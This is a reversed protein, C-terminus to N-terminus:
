KVKVPLLREQYSGDGLQGRDNFGWCYIEDFITVACTHEGFSAPDINEVEFPNTGWGGTAAYKVRQNLKVRVAYPRNERDGVGLEGHTNNGWCYLHFDNDIACTSNGRNAFINRINELLSGDEKRVYDAYGREQWTGDGLQGLANAGWCLVKGDSRLACTHNEAAAIKTVNQLLGDATHVYDIPATAYEQSFGPVGLQGESGNWAWCKVQGEELLACTHDSSGAAVMKVNELPESTHKSAHVLLPHPWFFTQYFSKENLHQLLNTPTFDKPDKGIGLAGDFNQGWCYLNGETTVGCAHWSGTSIQKIGRLPTGNEFVVEENISTYPQHQFPFLSQPIQNLPNQNRDVKGNGLKGYENRGWCRVEGEKTLLCSYEKAADVQVAVHTNPFNAIRTPVPRNQLTGDGLEGKANDGWCYVARGKVACTHKWGASIHHITQDIFSIFTEADNIRAMLNLPDPRGDEDIDLYVFYGDKSGMLKYLRQTANSYYVWRFRPDEQLRALQVFYGDPKKDPVEVEVPAFGFANNQTPPTALIRFKKGSKVDVYLWDNYDIKGDKEFDVMYFKGNIPVATFDYARALEEHYAVNQAIDAQLTQFLFLATAAALSLRKM